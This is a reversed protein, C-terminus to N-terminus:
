TKAVHSVPHAEEKGIKSRGQLIFKVVLIIDTWLLEEGSM